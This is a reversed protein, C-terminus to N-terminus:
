RRRLDFVFANQGTANGSVRRRLLAQCAGGNRWASRNACYDDAGNEFGLLRDVEEVKATIMMVPVDSFERIERCLAM